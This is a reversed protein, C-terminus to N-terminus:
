FVLVFRCSHPTADSSQHKINVALMRTIYASELHKISDLSLGGDGLLVRMGIVVTDDVLVLLLLDVLGLLLSELRTM